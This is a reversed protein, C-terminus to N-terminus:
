MASVATYTVDEGGGNDMGYVSFQDRIGTLSSECRSWHLAAGLVALVVAAVLLGQAAARLKEGDMGGGIRSM